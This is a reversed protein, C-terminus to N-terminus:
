RPAPWRDEAGRAPPRPLTVDQAAAEDFGDNQQEGTPLAGLGEVCARHGPEVGAQRGLGVRANGLSADRAELAEPEVLQEFGTPVM